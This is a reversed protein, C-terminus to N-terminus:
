HSARVRRRQGILLLMTGVVALGVLIIMGLTIINTGTFAVSPDNGGPSTPPPKSPPYQALAPGGTVVLTVVAGALAVGVRRV